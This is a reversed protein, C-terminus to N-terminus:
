LVTKVSAPKERIREAEGALLGLAVWFFPMIIVSSFCFLMTLLFCILGAGLIEMAPTRNKRRFWPYLVLGLLALWSLLAFIGQTYLIQLPLCHADTITAGAVLEGRANYRRFPSLGSRRVADPGVGLWLRSPIRRLMQRWIYIRGSGFSDSIHGHLISHIERFFGVGTPHGYLYWLGGGGAAAAALLGATKATRGVRLLVFLSLLLGLATGVVGCLVDIRVLEYFCLGAPLLAALRLIPHTGKGCLATCLCLAAMLSLLASVLDGNGTTGLFLYDPRIQISYYDMGDPYLGMPNKGLQQLVIVACYALVAALLVYLHPKRPRAWRSVGCFVVIYCAQTLAHEHCVSSYWAEKGYPSAAASLLTFALYCCAAIRAPSPKRCSRLVALLSIQNQTRARRLKLGLKVLYWGALVASFGYFLATKFGSIAFFGEKGCLLLYVPVFCAVWLDVFSGQRLAPFVSTSETKLASVQPEPHM